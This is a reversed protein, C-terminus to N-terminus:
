ESSWRRLSPLTGYRHQWFSDDFDDAAKSADGDESDDSRRDVNVMEAM